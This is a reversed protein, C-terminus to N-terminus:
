KDEVAVGYLTGSIQDEIQWGFESSLYLMTSMNTVTSFREGGNARKVPICLVGDPGSIILNWDFDLWLVGDDTDQPERGSNDAIAIRVGEEMSRDEPFIRHGDDLLTIVGWKYKDAM